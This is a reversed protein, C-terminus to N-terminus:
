EEMARLEELAKIVFKGESTATHFINNYEKNYRIEAM